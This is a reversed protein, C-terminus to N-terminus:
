ASSPTAAALQSTSREAEDDSIRTYDMIWNTEWSRGGDESFAQEWRPREGRTWIFRVLIPRGNFVDEAEFVGRDGDFRGVVPSDLVPNNKGAWWISWLGTKPDFLRLTTGVLGDGWDARFADGNAYGDLLPWAILSADFELWEACGALRETLRRSKVSWRGMLFDFDHIGSQDAM